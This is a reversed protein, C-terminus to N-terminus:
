MRSTLPLNELRVPFLNTFPVLIYVLDVGDFRFALTEFLGTDMLKQSHGKMETYDLVVGLKLGAAALLEQDAYDPAGKFQITKPLYKQAAAPQGSAFLVIASLLLFFTRKMIPFSYCFSRSARSIM